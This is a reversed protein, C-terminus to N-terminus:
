RGHRGPGQRWGQLCAMLLLVVSAILMPGWFVLLFWPRLEVWAISIFGFLYVAAFAVMGWTEISNEHPDQKDTGALM